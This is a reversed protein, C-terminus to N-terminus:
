KFIGINVALVLVIFYMVMLGTALHYRYINNKVLKNNSRINNYPQKKDCKFNYVTVPNYVLVYILLVCVAFLLNDPKIKPDYVCLFLILPLQHAFLDILQLRTDTFEIKLHKTVIKRPYIYTLVAGLVSITLVIVLVSEQFKKLVGIYYLGQILLGWYTFYIFTNNWIREFFYNLIKNTHM